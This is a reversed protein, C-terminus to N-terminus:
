NSASKVPTKGFGWFDFTGPETRHIHVQTGPLLHELKAPLECTFVRGRLFQAPVPTGLNPIAEIGPSVSLIEAPMAVPNKIRESIWVTSGAKLGEPNEDQKAFGRVTKEPQGNEPATRVITLIPEGLKAVGRLKHVKHVNGAGPAKLTKDALRQNLVLLEDPIKLEDLSAILKDAEALDKALEDISQEHTSLEIEIAEVKAIANDLDRQLSLQQEVQTKIIEEERQATEFRSQANAKEAKAKQIDANIGFRTAKFKRQIDARLFPLNAKYDDIEKQVLAPDLTVLPQGAKVTDGEKVHVTLVVGNEPPAIEESSASVMGNIRSPRNLQMGLVAVLGVMALWILVPWKQVLRRTRYSTGAGPTAKSPIENSM